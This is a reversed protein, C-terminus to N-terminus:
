LVLYTILDARSFLRYHSSRVLKVGLWARVVLGTPVTDAPAVGDQEEEDTMDVAQLFMKLSLTIDPM